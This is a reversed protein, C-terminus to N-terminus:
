GQLLLSISRERKSQQVHAQNVHAQNVHKIEFQHLLLAPHLMVTVMADYSAEFRDKAEVKARKTLQRRFFSTSCAEFRAQCASQAKWAASAM